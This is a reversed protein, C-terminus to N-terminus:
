YNPDVEVTDLKKSSKAEKMTARAGQIWYKIAQELALNFYNRNTGFADIVTMRFQKDLDDDIKAVIRSLIM